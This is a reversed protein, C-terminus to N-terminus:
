VSAALLSFPTLQFIHFLESGERRRCCEPHRSCRLLFVMSPRSILLDIETSLVWGPQASVMDSRFQDAQQHDVRPPETIFM